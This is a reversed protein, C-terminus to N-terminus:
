FSKHGILKITTLNGDEKEELHIVGEKLVMAQSPDVEVVACHHGYAMCNALRTGSSSFLDLM